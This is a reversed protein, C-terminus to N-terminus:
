LPIEAFYLEFSAEAPSNESNYVEFYFSQNPAIVFFQGTSEFSGGSNQNGNSSSPIFDASIEVAGTLDPSVTGYDYATVTPTKQILFNVPFPAVPTGVPIDGDKSYTYLFLGGGSYRKLTRDISIFLRDSGTQVAFFASDGGGIEPRVVRTVGTVNPSKSGWDLSLVFGDGETNITEQQTQSITRLRDRFALSAILTNPVGPSGVRHARYYVRWHTAGVILSPVARVSDIYGGARWDGIDDGALVPNRSSTFSIWSKGNTSWEVNYSGSIPTVETEYEDSYFVVDLIQAGYHDGSVPDTLTETVLGQMFTKVTM